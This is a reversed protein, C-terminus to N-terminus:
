QPTSSVDPVHPTGPVFLMSLVSVAAPQKAGYVRLTQQRKPPSAFVAPIHNSDDTRAVCVPPPPGKAPSLDPVSLLDSGVDGFVEAGFVETFFTDEPEGIGINERAVRAPLSCVGMPRMPEYSEKSSAARKKRVPRPTDDLARKVGRRTDEAHVDRKVGGRQTDGSHKAADLKAALRKEKREKQQKFNRLIRDRVVTRHHIVHAELPHHQLYLDFVSEGVVAMWSALAAQGASTDFPYATIYDSSEPTGLIYSLLAFPPVKPNMCQLTPRPALRRGVGHPGVQHQESMDVMCKMDAELANKLALQGRETELMSTAMPGCQELLLRCKNAYTEMAVRLHSALTVCTSALFHIYTFTIHYRLTFTCIIFHSPFHSTLASTHHLHTTCTICFHHLRPTVCIHTVSTM